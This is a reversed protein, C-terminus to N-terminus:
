VRTKSRTNYPYYKITFTKSPLDRANHLSFNLVRQPRVIWTKENVKIRVNSYENDMAPIVSTKCKVSLNNFNHLPIKFVLYCSIGTNCLYDRM